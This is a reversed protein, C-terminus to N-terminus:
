VVAQQLQLFAGSLIFVVGLVTDQFVSSYKFM